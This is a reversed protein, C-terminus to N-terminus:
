YSHILLTNLSNAKLLPSYITDNVKICIVREISEENGAVVVISNDPNVFALLNSFAGETQLRKAGPKVYHSIHKMVYYEPTYAFSKDENVVVLSNQAWGWRSVGGQMLSINWYLYGSVGNDLYHKMLNWAYMAGKWDNKGNGCEQETQYLRLDPYRARIGPLAAKGAWQFGVGRIYRGAATDTLVTDVLSENPREMTGFLVEVGADEMAPGLYNGVFNTLGAATWCCSPFIQASNFENQPMVAFIDIGEARYAEVFKSFYLAYAKLYADEQIFMDTGERGELNESLSNDITQGVSSRSAYHKNYKMWSPPSWPSAWIKIDPYYKQANKIFPILTERDNNISFDKMEFDSETEDYSYWDLAFDNAAIPMRCLTFSAGVGPSFLEKLIDERVQPELVNLSTWGLENFCAGFGEMTQQTCAPDIVVDATLDGADPQLLPQIEWFSDEVTSVFETGRPAESCSGGLGAVFWLVFLFRNVKMYSVYKMFVAFISLIQSRKYTAGLTAPCVNLKTRVSTATVRGSSFFREARAPFFRVSSSFINL